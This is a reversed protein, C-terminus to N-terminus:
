VVSKRDGRNQLIDIQANLVIWYFSLEKCEPTLRPLTFMDNNIYLDEGDYEEETISLGEPHEMLIETVRCCTASCSQMVTGKGVKMHLRPFVRCTLSLSEEGLEKQLMCLSDKGLFHCKGEVTLKMEAYCIDTPEKKRKFAGDIVSRLANSCKMEMYYLYESKSIDIHWYRCYNDTCDPGSCRFDDYYAFKVIHM